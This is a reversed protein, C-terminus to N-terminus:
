NKFLNEASKYIDGAGMILMVKNKDSKERILKESTEIDPSYTIERQKGLEVDRQQISEILDQSSVDDDSLEDRGAVSFIENLIIGDAEDLSKVFDHFLEKTRHHHHPHFVAVIEKTPYFQRAAHIAAAVATPHHAYDSIIVAGNYEGLIEFRRWTGSFQSLGKQITAFDIDHKLAVAIAGLANYINFTGPLPMSINGQELGFAEVDFTMTGEHFSINRAMIDANNEIAYTIKSAREVKMRTRSVEDDNNIYIFGDESVRNLMKNFAAIENEFTGFYDLHDPEVNTVILHNPHIHLFHEKFECAEVVFINEGESLLNSGWQKVYSGVVVTPKKEAEQMILGLMATTTTKGKNGAVAVTPMLESLKGLYAFYSLEEVNLSKAKLREPNTEPVADSYIVIDIDAPVNEQKQGIFIQAGLEKLDDLIFSEELDSGSVEINHQLFLKALASIGIGGIGIFHAKKIGQLTKM